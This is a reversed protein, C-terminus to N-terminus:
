FGKPFDPNRSEVVEGLGFSRMIEGIQIPEVYGDFDEDMWGRMAPDLSMHTQKVLFEGKQLDPTTLTVVEFVDPTIVEEPRKVFKVAKYEM